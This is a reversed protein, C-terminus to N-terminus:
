DQGHPAEVNRHHRDPSKYIDSYGAAAAASKVDEDSTYKRTAAAGEVLKIRALSEPSQRTRRSPMVTPPGVKLEDAQSVIEAVEADTLLAPQRFDM